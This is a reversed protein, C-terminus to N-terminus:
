WQKYATLVVEYKNYPDRDVHFNIASYLEGLDYFNDEQVVKKITKPKAYKIYKKKKNNYQGEKTEVRMIKVNDYQMM